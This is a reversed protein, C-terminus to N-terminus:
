WRFWTNPYPPMRESMEDANFEDDMACEDIMAPCYPGLCSELQRYMDDAPNVAWPSGMM